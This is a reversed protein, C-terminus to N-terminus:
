VCLLKMQTARSSKVSSSKGERGFAVNVSLSPIESACTARRVTTLTATVREGPAAETCGTRLAATLRGAAYAQFGAGYASRGLTPANSGVFTISGTCLFLVGRCCTEGLGPLFAFARGVRRM